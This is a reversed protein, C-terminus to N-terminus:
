LAMKKLFTVHHFLDSIMNSRLVNFEHLVLMYKKFLKSLRLKMPTQTIILYTFQKLTILSM